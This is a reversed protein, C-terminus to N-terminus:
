DNASDPTQPNADTDPETMNWAGALVTGLELPHYLSFMREIIADGIERASGGVTMVRRAEGGELGIRLLATLGRVSLTVPSWEDALAAEFDIKRYEAWRQFGLVSFFVPYDCGDVLISWMGEPTVKLGGM